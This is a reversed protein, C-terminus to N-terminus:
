RITHFRRDYVLICYIECYNGLQGTPFRLQWMEIFLNGFVNNHNTDFINQEIMCIHRPPIISSIDVNNYAIAIGSM